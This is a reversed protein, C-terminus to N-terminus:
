GMTKNISDVFDNRNDIHLLLVDCEQTFGYFKEIIQPTKFHLAVNHHKSEKSLGLNGIRLNKSEMEKTCLEVKNIEDLRISIDAILGNKLILETDTLISPRKTLAKIHGLIMLGMYISTATLIWAVLSSWKMLLLHFAFTEIFIVMLFAGALIISANDKYNTFENANLKKKGWSFLAYYMMTIESSFFSAFRSKGFLEKSSEKAINYFDTTRVSRSRFTKVGYFIKRILITLVVLEVIPVAYNKIANLHIQQHDPLLFTAIILGLIFVPVITLKSIKRKRILLFYVLPATLTLDYTIAIALDPYDQILPSLALFVSALIVFLPLGFILLEVRMFRQFGM